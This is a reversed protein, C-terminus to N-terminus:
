KSKENNDKIPLTFYFTTGKGLESEAWIKGGHQIVIKQAIALGIGTGEYEDKTHLRQFITFIRELHEPSMGIGNDKIAFLHQNSQKTDMIDIKPTENSHYKIANSIINRFLLEILIEDGYITPLINYNIKANETDIAYKLNMKTQELVKNIDVKSCDIKKRTVKSFELLDNIMENLRKAGEVAFGIFENADQDLKDTYRRELLQLFSTIMRLPEKLDHSAIYAFQKLEKNSQELAKTREKVKEELNEQSKQLEIEIKNREISYNISRTLLKSDIEKKILYDQAGMKVALIGIEENNLGTLVIIPINPTKKDVEILTEIGDSDPLGLDLLIIDFHTNNLANLGEELSEVNKLIYKNQFEELMEELLGADGPNDEFLLIEISKANPKNM